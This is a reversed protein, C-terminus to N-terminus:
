TYIVYLKVFTKSCADILSEDLPSVHIYIYLVNIIM